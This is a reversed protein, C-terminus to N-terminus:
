SVHAYTRLNIRCSSGHSTGTLTLAWNCAGGNDTIITMRMHIERWAENHCVNLARSFMHSVRPATRSRPAGCLSEDTVNLGLMVRSLMPFSFQSCSSATHSESQNVGRRRKMIPAEYGFQLTHPPPSPAKNLYLARIAGLFKM